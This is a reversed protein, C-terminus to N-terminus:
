KPKGCCIKGLNPVVVLVLTVKYKGKITKLTIQTLCTPRLNSM